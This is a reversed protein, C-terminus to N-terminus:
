YRPSVLRPQFRSVVGWAGFVSFYLFAYGQEGFREIKARKKIGFYKAIPTCVIVTIFQRVFSFFVIHYAVFVLDLYGKAYRPDDPASTPIRHSIFLLPAFPNSLGQAVHPAVLEWNIYLVVPVLLM